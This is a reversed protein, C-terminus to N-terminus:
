RRLDHALRHARQARLVVLAAAAEAARRLERGRRRDLEQEAGAREVEHAAREVAHRRAAHVVEDAAAEVAVGDVLLPEHRVELLHEVVVRQEDGRVQVAPEHGALLAVAADDLLRDLVRQALEAEFAAAEGRRLVGVGVADFPEGERPRRLLDVAGSSRSGNSCPRKM